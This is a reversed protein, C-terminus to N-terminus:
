YYNYWNNYKDHKVLAEQWLKERSDMDTKKYCDLDICYINHPPSQEVIYNNPHYDALTYPNEKDNLRLLAYDRIVQMQQLNPYRGKIYECKIQITKKNLTKFVFHPIKIKGFDDLYLKKLNNMVWNCKSETPYDMEKILTFKVQIRQRQQDPPLSDRAYAASINESGDIINPPVRQPIAKEVM